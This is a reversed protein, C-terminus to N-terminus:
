SVRGDLISQKDTVMSVEVCSINAPVQVPVSAEWAQVDGVGATIPIM